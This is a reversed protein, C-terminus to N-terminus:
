ELDLLHASSLRRLVARSLRACFETYQLMIMLKESNVNIFSTEILVNVRWSPGLPRPLVVDSM